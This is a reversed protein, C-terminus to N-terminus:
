VSDLYACRRRDDPLPSRGLKAVVHEVGDVSIRGGVPPVDGWAERLSYGSPDGVFVLHTSAVPEPEPEPETAEPGEVREVARELRRVQAAKAAAAEELRRIAAHAQELEAERESDRFLRRELRDRRAPGNGRDPWHPWDAERKRDVDM